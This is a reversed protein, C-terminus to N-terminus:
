NLRTTALMPLHSAFEELSYAQLTNRYYTVDSTETDIVWFRSETTQQDDHWTNSQLCIHPEDSFLGAEARFWSPPVKGFSELAEPLHAEFLVRGTEPGASDEQPHRQDREELLRPSAM